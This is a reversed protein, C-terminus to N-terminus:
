QEEEQEGEGDSAPEEETGPESEGEQNQEEGSEEGEEAPPTEEADEENGNGNQGNNGSGNGQNENGNGEGNSNGGNGNENQDEEPNENSGEDGQEEGSNNQEEKNEEPQEADEEGGPVTASASSPDSREADGDKSIAVVTFEYTSGPQIQSVEMSRSDTTTLERSDGGDIAVSVEFTVNDESHDWELDIAQSEENYNASLGSVPDLKDFQESTETPQNDVHFLETVIQSEPTYDSPLEAPRSGEEVDVWQVSDPKTFDSTEKGASIDQMVYKFLQRPIQQSSDSLNENNESYGTWISVSYNTTYGSFWVDPVISTGDELNRNTTGTKGAVPLGPINAARGTGEEMVTGLMSTIMYATYDSMASKSEPTMDVSEGEPTEGKRVTFPENYKGGNGFAAYAGSMQVPNTLVGGGIADSLYMESNEFSFGLGEVFPQAKEPGVEQLTKIAPINLSDKLADRMSVWGRFRDDYNGPSWADEGSGITIEEDNIQHYTSLKENEIAPGYAAIPKFTSGPQRNIDSAYNYGGTTYDRGGGIARIAGTKTDTVAIGSQLKENPWAIPGEGSLAQEVTEQANPDITTHIELGDKYIDAGDMKKSVEKAVQDIFAKYPREKDKQETLLDEVNTEKAKEADEESIKDHQVMLNLVTSMRKQALDPNEYPDYGSPRQPLGALLAMEPLTLEKLESKGFYTESAEIIGYAGQGYYIKNLYMELITEKSYEQDLKIALYQEQVKRELTKNSTLYSRKVVQQTITSAGESGFGNTINSIVAAGIRRPDIGLHSFFRVDETALVADVLEPPLDDYNVRTRREDGAVDTILEDNMDYIRSSFPDSLQAEDLEPAQSIYYAFLGGVGLMLVIGITLLTMFITKFPVRRKGNTKKSPKLSKRRASRSQSDNAM